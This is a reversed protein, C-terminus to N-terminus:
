KNLNNYDFRNTVAQRSLDYLRNLRLALEEQLEDRREPNEELGALLSQIEQAQGILVQAIASKEDSVEKDKVNNTDAVYKSFLRGLTQYQQVNEPAGVNIGAKAAEDTFRSFAEGKLVTFGEKGYNFVTNFSKMAATDLSIGDKGEAGVIEVDADTTTNKPNYRDTKKTTTIQYLDDGFKQFNIDKEETYKEDKDPVIQKAFDYSQQVNKTKNFNEVFLNFQEANNAMPGDAIAEIAQADVEEQSKGDFLGFILKAPMDKISTARAKKTNLAVVADYEEQTGLKKSAEYAEKFAKAQEEAIKLATQETLDRYSGFKGIEEVGYKQAIAAEVQAINQKKFYDVESMNSKQVDLYVTDLYEKNKLANKQQVNAAYINENQLFTKTKEALYKNGINGILSAGLGIIAQKEEEKRLRKAEQKNRKRIDSLLSEGFQQIAM